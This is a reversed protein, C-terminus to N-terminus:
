SYMNEKQILQLRKAYLSDLGGYLMLEEPDMEHLSNFSNSGWVAVEEKSPRKYKEVHSDYDYRGFNVATQFKLSTVATRNDLFHTMLTTDHSWNRPSVGLCAKTWRDEFKMNAATKPVTSTLWDALIDESGKVPFSFAKTGCASVSCTLIRHGKREPKLGTTEYDFMVPYKSDSIWRFLRRIERRNWLIEIRSDDDSYDPVPVGLLESIRFMDDVAIKWSVDNKGGNRLIYSPHLVPCVWAKLKQDPITWGRWRFVGGFGWPDGLYRHAYISQMAEKGMPIIIDPPNEKLENWVTPRCSQVHKYKIEEDRPHCNVANLRRCDEYLNIGARAFLDRALKGAPGVLQTGRRDEESGPSQALVLIKKKGEGHPPMQPCHIGKKLGCEGCRPLGGHSSEAQTESTDFFGKRM